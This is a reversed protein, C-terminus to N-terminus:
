TRGSRPWRFKSVQFSTRPKSQNIFKLTLTRQRSCSVLSPSILTHIHQLIKLNSLFRFTFLIVKVTPNFVTFKCFLAKVRWYYWVQSLNALSNNWQEGNDKWDTERRRKMSPKKTRRTDQTTIASTSKIATEFSCSFSLLWSWQISWFTLLRESPSAYM